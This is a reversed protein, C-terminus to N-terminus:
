ILHDVHLYEKYLEKHGEYLALFIDTMMIIANNDM